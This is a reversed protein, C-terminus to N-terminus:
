RSAWAANKGTVDVSGVKAWTLWRRGGTFASGEGGDYAGGRGLSRVSGM